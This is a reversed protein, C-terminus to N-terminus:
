LDNNDLTIKKIHDTFSFKELVYNKDVISFNTQLPTLDVNLAMTYYQHIQVFKWLLFFFFPAANESWVDLFM